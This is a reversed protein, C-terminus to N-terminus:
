DKGLIHWHAKIQAFQKWWQEMTWQIMQLPPRRCNSQPTTSPSFSLVISLNSKKVPVNHLLLYNDGTKHIFLTIWIFEFFPFFFFFFFSNNIESSLKFCHYMICIIHYHINIFFSPSSKKNEKLIAHITWRRPSFCPITQSVQQLCLTTGLSGLSRGEKNGSIHCSRGGIAQWWGHFAM